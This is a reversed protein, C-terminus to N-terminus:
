QNGILWDIGNSVVIQLPNAGPAFSYAQLYLHNGLLSTVSPIGASFQYITPSTATTSLGLIDNSQLLYCGPMGVPTLDAPLPVSAASTNSWGVAVATFLSNANAIDATATTGLVPSAGPTFTLVPSGCGTGFATGTATVTPIAGHFAQTDALFNPGYMDWHIGGFVVLRDNAIDFAAGHRTRDGPVATAVISWNLGDHEMTHYQGARVIAQRLPDYGIANTSGVAPHPMSNSLLTWDIGDFAWTDRLAGVVGPTAGGVMVTTQQAVHYAMGHGYRGSPSNATIVQTWTSGDYEWTDNLTAGVQVSTSGGFLTTVQRASDFAMAHGFRSSPANSTTIQTWTLGDYEWTDNLLNAFSGQHGGFLVIVQRAVDYVMSHGVRASPTNATAVPTWTGGVLEVTDAVVNGGNWDGGFMVVRNRAADYAMAQDFRTPANGVAQWVPNQAHSMGVLCTVAIVSLSKKM